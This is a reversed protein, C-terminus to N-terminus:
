QASTEEYPGGRAVASGLEAKGLSSEDGRGWGCVCGQRQIVVAARSSTPSLQAHPRRPLPLLTPPVRSLTVPMHDWHTAAAGGCADAPPGSFAKSQKPRGGLASQFHKQGLLKRPVALFVFIISNVLSSSNLELVM